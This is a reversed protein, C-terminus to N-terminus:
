KKDMKHLHNYVSGGMSMKDHQGELYHTVDSLDTSAREIKAVVWAEINSKKTVVKSLEDAHHKVEKVNSLVMQANSDVVEKETVGGEAMMGGKEMFDQQWNYDDPFREVLYDINKKATKYSSLIREKSNAPLSKRSLLETVSFIKLEMGDRLNDQYRNKLNEAEKKTYVRGDFISGYGMEKDLEMLAYLTDPTPLKGGKAMYGGDAYQGESIHETLKKIVVDNLQNFSQNKAISRWSGKPSFGAREIEEAHDLLFHNKQEFNWMEWVEKATKFSYNNPISGGKAMYGGKAYKSNIDTEIEYVKELYDGYEAEFVEINDIYLEYKGKNDKNVSFGRTDGYFYKDAVYKEVDQISGGEAMMGGDERSQVYKAYLKDHLADREQRLSTPLHGISEHKALITKADRIDSETGYNEALLVVNESHMNEDENEEYKKFFDKKSLKGGHSMMGGKKYDNAGVQNNKIEDKVMSDVLKKFLNRTETTYIDQDIYIAVESLGYDTINVGNGGGTFARESSVKLYKQLETTNEGGKAMMGGKKYEGRSEQILMTYVISASIWGKKNYFKNALNYIHQFDKPTVVDGMENDDNFDDIVDQVLGKIDVVYLKETSNMATTGVGDENYIEWYDADFVEGGDALKPYKATKSPQKVDLRNARYEYYVNGKSSKKNGYQNGKIGKSVRRGIPLAPEESDKKLDVGSKKYISYKKKKVLEKLSAITSKAGSVKRPATSKLDTQAKELKGKLKNKISASLGKSALATKLKKIDNKLQLTNAM